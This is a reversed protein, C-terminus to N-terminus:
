PTTFGYVMFGERCYRLARRVAAGPLVLVVLDRYIVRKLMNQGDDSDGAVVWRQFISKHAHM